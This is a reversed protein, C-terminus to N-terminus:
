PTGPASSRKTATLYPWIRSPLSTPLGCVPLPPGQGCGELTLAEMEGDAPHPCCHLRGPNNPFVLSLVGPVTPRCSTAQSILLGM